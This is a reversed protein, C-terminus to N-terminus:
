RHSIVPLQRRPIHRLVEIIVGDWADISTDKHRNWMPNWLDQFSQFVEQLNGILKEQM